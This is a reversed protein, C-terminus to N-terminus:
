AVGNKIKFAQEVMEATITIGDFTIPMLAKAVGCYVNQCFELQHKVSINAQLYQEIQLDTLGAQKLFNVFDLATMTLNNIRAREIQEQEEQTYYLADIDGNEKFEIIYANENADMIFKESEAATYPAKLTKIVYM